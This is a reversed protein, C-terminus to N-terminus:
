RKQDRAGPMEAEGKWSGGEVAVGVGRGETSERGVVHVHVLLYMVLLCISWLSM